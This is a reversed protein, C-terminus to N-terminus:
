PPRCCACARGPGCHRVEMEPLSLEVYAQRGDAFTVLARKGAFPQHIPPPPWYVTPDRDSWVQVDAATGDRVSAMFDSFSLTGLARWNPARADTPAARPHPSDATCGPFVPRPPPRSARM